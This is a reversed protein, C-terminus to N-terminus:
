SFEPPPSVLNLHPKHYNNFQYNSFNNNEFIYFSSLVKNDNLSYLEITKNVEEDKEEEESTVVLVKVDMSNDLALIITPTAIVSLFLISFLTAIIKNRM